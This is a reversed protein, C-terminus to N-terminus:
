LLVSLGNYVEDRVTVLPLRLNNECIGKIHLAAKIGAPNGDAFLLDILPLMQYHLTKAEEMRGQLAHTVMSSFEAPLVNAVVSIVGQAGLAILPFTLADDGSLVMFDRPKTRLIQMVQSLDGSAEKIAIINDFGNALSLTTSATLNSSTRGPVNYLIIPVPSAKAIASFHAYLGRQNPKNYYPAVSLIAEIGTFDTERLQDVVATTNNGGVGLVLPIKGGVQQKVFDLVQGREENSLTVAESTTGMAVIFDVAGGILHLLLRELAPFDVSGDGKFPTVIAVGTGQIKNRM